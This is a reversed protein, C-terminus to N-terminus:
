KILLKSAFMKNDESIVNILYIGTTLQTPIRIESKSIVTDISLIKQGTLAFLKISKLNKNKTNLIVLEENYNDYYASIHELLINENSLTSNRFSLFFRDNYIGPQLYIEFVDGNSIRHFTQNYADEIYIDSINAPLNQVEDINFSVNGLEAVKVILPIRTDTNIEPVAQIVFERENINWLLDAGPYDNDFNPGDWAIDIDNTTNPRIALLLQRHYNQPTNFGIRINTLDNNPRIFVSNVGETKFDRQSNNFIINGGQGAEAWVFFGQAVPIYQQPTKTGVTGGGNWSTAPTGGSLTYTAYGGQYNAGFHDNGGTHEWFYLTGNFIDNTNNPNNSINDQIFLNADLASPYPNGILYNNNASITLTYEGDNPTGSFTWSQYDTTSAGNADNLNADVGPGKMTYGEGPSISGNHQIQNWGAYSNDPGDIFSYVWYANLTVPHSGGSNNVDNTANNNYAISIVPYTSFNENDGTAGDRLYGMQWSGGQNTPASWYNYWYQNTTGQQDIWIYGGGTNSSIGTHTQLLQANDMLRIHGNLNLTNNVYLAVNSDVKYDFDEAGNALNMNDTDVMAQQIVSNNSNNIVLNHFYATSSGLINQQNNGSFETTGTAAADMTGNNTFNDGKFIFSGNNSWLYTSGNNNIFDIGSIYLTAGSTITVNGNNIFQAFTSFSLFVFILSIKKM